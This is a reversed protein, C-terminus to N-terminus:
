FRNKYHKLIPKCEAQCKVLLENYLKLNYSNPNLQKENYPNIIINKNIEKKIELGSLIM